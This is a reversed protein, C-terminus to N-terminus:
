PITYYSSALKWTTIGEWERIGNVVRKPWRLAEVWEVHGEVFLMNAGRKGHNSKNTLRLGEEKGLTLIDNTNEANADEDHVLWARTTNIGTYQMSPAFEGCYEYSMQSPPTPTESSVKYQNSSWTFKLKGGSRKCILEKWWDERKPLTGARDRTSPCNFVRVDKVYSDTVITEYVFKGGTTRERRVSPVGWLPSLDDFSMLVPDPTRQAFLDPPRNSIFNRDWNLIYSFLGTGIQKLNSRCNVERASRLSQMIAPLATAALTMIIGLVILMEILTFGTNRRPLRM